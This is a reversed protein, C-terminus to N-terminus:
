QAVLLVLLRGRNHPIGGLIVPRHDALGLTTDVIQAGGRTVRVRLNAQNGQCLVQIGHPLSVSGDAPLGMRGQGALDFRRFPLNSQLLGSVDDLAKAVGAGENHAEVLRISVMDGAVAASLPMLAWLAVWRCWRPLPFPGLYIRSKLTSNM